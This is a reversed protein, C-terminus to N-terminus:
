RERRIPQVTVGGQSMRALVDRSLMTAGAVAAPMIVIAAGPVLFLLYTLVGFGLTDARRAGLMRRRIGLPIRRADFAYGCLELALFWGGFLAGAVPVVTQGILPIFGCVFLVLGVSATLALLRVATGVGRVAGAWFSEDVDAPADGLRVEVRRWIREYFPDGVALTVATFTYVALLVVLATLALGAAFRAATRAPETWGDAFPTIWAALQDLNVAFVSFAAAYLLGVILAPVAGVLMVRPSTVWMRLGKGLYGMGAFFRGVPGPGADPGTDRPTSTMRRSYPPRTM